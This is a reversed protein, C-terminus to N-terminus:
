GPMTYFFEERVIKEDQVTYLAVEKMQTRTGSEKETADIEFIVAFRDPGHIYPGDVDGGHVDFSAGWWEQKARIAERGHSIRSMDSGPPMFAEISEANEAYLEDLGELARGQRCNDVLKHAIEDLTM